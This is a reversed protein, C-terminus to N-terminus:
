SKCCSFCSAVARGHTWCCALQCLNAGSEAPSAHRSVQQQQQQGQAPQDTGAAAQLVQVVVDKQEKVAELTACSVKMSANLQQERELDAATAEYQAELQEKREQPVFDRPTM